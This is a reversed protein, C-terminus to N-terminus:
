QRMKKVVKLKIKNWGDDTIKENFVEKWLERILLSSTNIEALIEERSNKISRGM